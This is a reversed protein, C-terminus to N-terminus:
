RIQDFIISAGLAANLPAAREASPWAASYVSEDLGAAMLSNGLFVSRAEPVSDIRHILQRPVSNRALMQVILNFSGVVILGLLLQTLLCWRRHGVRQVPVNAM